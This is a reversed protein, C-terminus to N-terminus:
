FYKKPFDNMDISKNWGSKEFISEKHNQEELLDELSYKFDFYDEVEAKKFDVVLDVDSDDNFHNTLISGSVFLKSAKHQSLQILKM